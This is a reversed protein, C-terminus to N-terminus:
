DVLFGWFFGDGAQLGGPQAQAEGQPWAVEAPADDSHGARRGDELHVVVAALGDDLAVQRM